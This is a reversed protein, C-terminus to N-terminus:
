ASGAAAHEGARAMMLTALNLHRELPLDGPAGLDIGAKDYFPCEPLDEAARRTMGHWAESPTYFSAPDNGLTNDKKFWVIPALEPYDAALQKKIAVKDRAAASSLSFQHLLTAPSNFPMVLSQGCSEVADQFGSCNSKGLLWRYRFLFLEVDFDEFGGTSFVMTELAQDLQAIFEEPQQVFAPLAFGPLGKPGLAWGLLYARPTTATAFSTRALGAMGSKPLLPLANALGAAARFGTRWLRAQYLGRRVSRWRDSHDTFGVDLLNLEGCMAQALPEVQELANRYLAFNFTRGFPSFELVKTLDEPAVPRAPVEELVSGHDKAVDRAFGLEHESGNRQIHLARLPRGAGAYSLLGALSDLGGSFFMRTNEHDLSPDVLLSGHWRDTVFRNALLFRRLDDAVVIPKDEGLRV